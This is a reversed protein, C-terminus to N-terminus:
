NTSKIKRGQALGGDGESYFCHNGAPVLEGCGVGGGLSRVWSTFVTM